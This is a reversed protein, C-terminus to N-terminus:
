ELVNEMLVIILYNKGFVLKGFLILHRESILLVVVFHKGV